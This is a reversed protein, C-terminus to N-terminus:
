RAFKYLARVEDASLDRNYMRAEDLSGKFFYMAQDAYSTGISLPTLPNTRLVGTLGGSDIQNGNVYMEYRSGDWVAAYHVWASNQPTGIQRDISSLSTYLSFRYHTMYIGLQYCSGATTEDLDSYQKSFIRSTGAADSTNFWVAMTFPGTFNISANTGSDVWDDVGDLQIANGVKGTVFSMGTSNLNSATGNNGYGSQDELGLTQGNAITGSSTKIFEFSIASAKLGSKSSIAAETCFTKLSVGGSNTATGNNGYGSQDELGLTQGNAITGSGDFPWYGVLGSPTKWLSLDTGLEIRGPDSGKDKSASSKLYKESELLSLVEYSGGTLYSYYRSSSNQPDIPLTPIPSGGPMSSLNVPIWGTGDVKRYNASTSCSYEYPAPLVPLSYSACHSDADPLSLYVYNPNGGPDGMQTTFTFLAGNVTRLDTLRTTDRAEAILEQPNLAVFTIGGMIGLIGIVLLLELLTFGRGM